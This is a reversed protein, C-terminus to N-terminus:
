KKKTKRKFSHRIFFAFIIKPKYEYCFTTLIAIFRKKTIKAVSLLGLDSHRIKKEIFFRSSPHVAVAIWMLLCNMKRIISSLHM